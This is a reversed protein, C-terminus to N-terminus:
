KYTCNPLTKTNCLSTKVFDPGKNILGLESFHIINIKNNHQKQQPHQTEYTLSLNYNPNYYVVLTLNSYISKGNYLWEYLHSLTHHIYFMYFYFVMSSIHQYFNKFLFMFIFKFQSYCKPPLKQKYKFQLKYFRNYLIIGIVIVITAM